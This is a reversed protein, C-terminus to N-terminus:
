KILSQFLFGNENFLYYHSRFTNYNRGNSDEEYTALNITVQANDRGYEQLAGTEGDLSWM